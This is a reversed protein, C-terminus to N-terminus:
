AAVPPSTRAQTLYQRMYRELEIRQAFHGPTFHRRILEEGIGYNVSAGFLHRLAMATYGGTWIRVSECESHSRFLSAYLLEFPLFATAGQDLTLVEKVVPALSAAVQRVKHPNDRPHPKYLLLAGPPPALRRVIDRYLAIEAAPTVVGSESLSEGILVLCSRGRVSERLSSLGPFDTQCLSDIVRRQWSADVVHTPMPPQGNAAFANVGSLYGVDFEVSELETRAAGFLLGAFAQQVVRKWSRSSSWRSVPPAHHKRGSYLGIGDGYCVKEASRYAGLLLESGFQWNRCLYISDARDTGILERVGRIAADTGRWSALSKLGRLREAPITVINKWAALPSAMQRIVRDFQDAAPSYLDHIVLHNDGTRWDRGARDEKCAVAAIATVLQATGQCTIL